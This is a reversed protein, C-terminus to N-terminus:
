YVKAKISPTSTKEDNFRCSTATDSELHLHDIDVEEYPTNFVRLLGEKRGVIHYQTESVGYQNNAFQM